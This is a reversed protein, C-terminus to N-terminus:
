GGTFPPLLAIEDGSILPENTYIIKKNKALSFTYLELAPYAKILNKTLTETDNVFEFEIEDTKTVDLLKGFFLIKLM